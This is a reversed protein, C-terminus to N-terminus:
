EMFHRNREGTNEVETFLIVKQGTASVPCRLSIGLEEMGKQTGTCTFEFNYQQQMQERTKLGDM